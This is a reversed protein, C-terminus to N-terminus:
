IQGPIYTDLRCNAILLFVFFFSVFFLQVIFTNECPQLIDVKITM